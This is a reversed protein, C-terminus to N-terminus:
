KNTGSFEVTINSMDNGNWFDDNELGTEGSFVEDLTADQELPESRMVALNIMRLLDKAIAIRAETSCHTRGIMGSWAIFEDKSGDITVLDSGILLGLMASHLKRKEVAIEGDTSLDFIISTVLDTPNLSLAEFLNSLNPSSAQPEEETRRIYATAMSIVDDYNGRTMDMAEALVQLKAAKAPSLHDDAIATRARLAVQYSSIEEKIGLLCSIEALVGRIKIEENRASKIRDVLDIDSGCDSYLDSVEKLKEALPEVSVALNQSIQQMGIIDLNVQRLIDVASAGQELEMKVRIQEILDKAEDQNAALLENATDIVHFLATNEGTNTVERLRSLYPKISEFLVLIEKVEEQTYSKTIKQQTDPINSHVM